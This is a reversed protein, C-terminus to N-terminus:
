GRLALVHAATAALKTRPWTVPPLKKVAAADAARRVDDFLVDPHFRVVVADHESDDLLGLKGRLKTPVLYDPPRPAGARHQPRNNPGVIQVRLRVDPDALDVDLQVYRHAIGNRVMSFLM